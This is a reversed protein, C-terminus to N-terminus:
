SYAVPFLESILRVTFRFNFCKTSHLDAICISFVFLRFLATSWHITLGPALMEDEHFALSNCFTVCLQVAHVTQYIKLSTFAHV